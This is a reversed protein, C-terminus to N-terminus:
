ALMLAHALLPGLTAVITYYTSDEVFYPKSIILHFNNYFIM